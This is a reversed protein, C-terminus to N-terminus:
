RIIDQDLKRSKESLSRWFAAHEPYRRSYRTLNLDNMRFPFSYVPIEAQGNRRSWIALLYIREIVPDTMPICGITVCSGHIFIDGGPDLRGARQRDEANPYSLGLSLHFNSYPNFRDIHYVGEPVQGDGKRKKPGLTGSSACIPFSEFRRFRKESTPRVYVELEKEAKYVVILLQVNDPGVGSKQLDDTLNGRHKKIAAAVRPAQLQNQYFDAPTAAPLCLSLLLFAILRLQIMDPETQQMVIICIMVRNM